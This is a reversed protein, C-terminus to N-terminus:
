RSAGDTEKKKNFRGGAIIGLTSGISAGLIGGLFLDLRISYKAMDDHILNMVICDLLAGAFGGVIGGQLGGQYPHDGTDKERMQYTIFPVAILIAIIEFLKTKMPLILVIFIALVGGLLPLYKKM